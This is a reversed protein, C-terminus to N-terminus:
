RRGRFYKPFFAELKKQEICHHNQIQYMYGKYYQPLNRRVKIERHKRVHINRPSSLLKRRCRNITMHNRGKIRIINYIINVSKQTNFWTEDRPYIFIEKDYYELKKKYNKDIKKKNYM